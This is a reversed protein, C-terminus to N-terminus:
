EIATNPDAFHTLKNEYIQLLISAKRSEIQMVRTMYEYSKERRKASGTYLSGLMDIVSFSFLMAPYPAPANRTKVGDLLCDEVDNKLHHLKRQLLDEAYILLEKSGAFNSFRSTAIVNSMFKEWTFDIM